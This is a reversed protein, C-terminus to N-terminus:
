NLNVWIAPRIGVNENSKYTWSPFGYMDVTVAKDEYGTLTRTWYTEGCMRADDDAFLDENMIEEKCLLFVEDECGEEPEAYDIMDREDQTFANIVFVTNLWEKVDSDKYKYRPDDDSHYEGYTIVYKSFLLVHGDYVELVTWDLPEGDYKGFTVTNGEYKYVGRKLENNSM